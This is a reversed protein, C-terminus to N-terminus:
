THAARVLQEKDVNLVRTRIQQHTDHDIRRIFHRMGAMNPPIPSDEQPLRVISRIQLAAPCTPLEVFCFPRTIQSLLPQAVQAFYKLKAEDIDAQTFEGRAAWLSAEKFKDM